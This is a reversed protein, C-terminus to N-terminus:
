ELTSPKVQEFSPMSKQLTLGWVWVYLPTNYINDSGSATITIQTSSCLLFLFPTLIQVTVMHSENEASIYWYGWQNIEWSVVGNWPVFEYFIGDYHVGVQM